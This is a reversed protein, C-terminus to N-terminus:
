ELNELKSLVAKPVYTAAKILPSMFIIGMAPTDLQGALYMQEFVRDAQENSVLVNIIEKEADVTIGLLGLRERVGTGRAYYTTAGQAGAERAATVVDEALGRQLICTILVVDTLVTIERRKM